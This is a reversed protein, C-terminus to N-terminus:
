HTASFSIEVIDPSTSGFRHHRGSDLNKFELVAPAFLAPDLAYFDQNVQEFLESFLRGHLDSCCSVAKPGIDELSRDDGTVELQVVGGYLISDNTCGLAILADQTKPPLPAIANGRVIRELNFGCEHLQHLSTELSRAVIQVIGAPSETAAVLLTIAHTPLRTLAALEQCVTEPPMRNTELLGITVSPRERRGITEYIKEKGIVARIPGSAMARYNKHDIKWGAYQSALCASVPDDSHVQVLPWPCKSWLDPLAQLEQKTDITVEGRGGMAIEALVVGLESSGSAQVGCDIVRTGSCNTIDAQYREPNGLLAHLRSAAGDNLSVKTTPRSPITTETNHLSQHYTPSM